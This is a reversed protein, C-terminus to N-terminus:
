RRMSRSLAPRHDTEAARRWPADYAIAQLRAFGAAFRRLLAAADDSWRDRHDAWAAHDSDHM